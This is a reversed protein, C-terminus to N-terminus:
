RDVEIMIENRRLLPLTWPPNFFAYTPASLAKLNKQAIFHELQAQESILKEQTPSGSFRIVAYRKAEIQKLIVANNSPRPLTEITYSSSMIFSVKWPGSSKGEQMVPATMATKEGSKQMVPATMAMKGSSINKGFIYDAIIRFGQRIADERTGSVETEAIIKRDYDRIEIAGSKDIVTYRAQEVNSMIPGLSIAFIFLIPVLIWFYKKRM